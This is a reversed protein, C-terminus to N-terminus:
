LSVIATALKVLCFLIPVRNSLGLSCPMAITLRLYCFDRTVSTALRVKWSALQEYTNLDTVICRGDASKSVFRSSDLFQICDITDLHSSGGSADIPQAPTHTKCWIRLSQNNVPPM